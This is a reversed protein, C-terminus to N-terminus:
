TGSVPEDDLTALYEAEFADEPEDDVEDNTIRWKEGEAIAREQRRRRSKKHIETVRALANTRSKYIRERQDDTLREHPVASCIFEDRHDYIDIFDRANPLYRISVVDGRYRALAPHTFDITDFKVGNKTVKRTKPSALFLHRVEAAEVVEIPTPDALWRERPTFGDSGRHGNNRADFWDCIEAQVARYDLLAEGAGLPKGWRDEPTHTCGPIRALCESKFVGFLREIKGNQWPSAKVILHGAIGYAAFGNTIADALHALANDMWVSEPRGGFVNGVDDRFGVLLAAMLAVVAETAPAGGIGDGYTFVPRFVYRTAADIITTMWPKVVGGSYSVEVPLETHDFHLRQMRREVLQKGYLGSAIAAAGGGKVGARVVPEENAIRRYFQSLSLDTEGSTVLAQWARKVSGGSAAVEALHERPLRRRPADDAGTATPADAIRRVTRTSIGFTKALQAAVQDLLVGGNANKSREATLAVAERVHGPIRRGSM